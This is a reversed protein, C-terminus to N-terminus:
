LEAVLRYCAPPSANGAEGGSGDVFCMFSPDILFWRRRGASAAEAASTSPAAAQPLLSSLLEEPLELELEPELEAFTLPVTL